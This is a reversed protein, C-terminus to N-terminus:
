SKRYFVHDDIVGLMVFKTSWYPNVTTAHYHTSGETFDYFEDDLLVDTMAFIKEWPEEEHITEPKGDCYYSFQCRNIVINGKWDKEAQRVVKCITNPYDPDEVRNLIVMGVALQGRTSQNRAEFYIGEALCEKETSVRVPAVPEPESVVTIEEREIVGQIPDPTEREFPSIAQATLYLVVLFTLTLAIAIYKYM